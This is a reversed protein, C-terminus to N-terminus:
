VVANHARRHVALDDGRKDLRPLPHLLARANSEHLGHLHLVAQGRRHIADDPFHGGDRAGLGDFAGDDGADLRILHLISTGLISCRMLSQTPQSEMRSRSSQILSFSLARRLDAPFAPARRRSRLWVVRMAGFRAASMM